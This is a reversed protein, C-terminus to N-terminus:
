KPASREQVHLFDPPSLQLQHPDFIAIQICKLCVISRMNPHVEGLESINPKGPDFSRWFCALVMARIAWTAVKTWFLSKKQCFHGVSQRYINDHPALVFGQLLSITLSYSTLASISDFMKSASYFYKNTKSIKLIKVRM